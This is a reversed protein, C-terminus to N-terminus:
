KTLPGTVFGRDLDFVDGVSGIICEGRKLGVWERIQYVPEIGTCHAGMFYRIRSEKLQAATWKIQENSNELLHFGGIAALLPQNQLNNQVHTITNIIGSHGCGSVLVLGKETRIVLSIDEPVIDEVVKGSADKRRLTNAGLTYNKEPYKRPVPGSLYIGPHIETFSDHVKIQGGTEVYLLSDNRRSNNEEGSSSIRADFLGKGVHTLSLANANVAKIAHRLPLWGVTHDGHNHSLVVTPVNSLDINLEKCNELVTTKHAGADFLIKISDAEVLASFGGNM